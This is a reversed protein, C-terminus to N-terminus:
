SLNLRDFVRQWVLHSIEGQQGLIHPHCQIRTLLQDGQELIKLLFSSPIQSSCPSPALSSWTFCRFSPINMEWSFYVLFRMFLNLKYVGLFMCGSWYTGWYFQAGIWDTCFYIWCEIPAHNATEKVESRTPQVYGKSDPYTCTKLCCGFHGMQCHDFSDDM